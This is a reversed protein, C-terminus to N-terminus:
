VQAGKVAFLESQEPANRHTCPICKGSFYAQMEKAPGKDMLHGHCLLFGHDAQKLVEASHTILLVTSGQDKLKRIVSFIFNVAEIDVGSDPEDMLVLKPKMIAISALEIRKREGGSLTKDVKRSRYRLPSLGVLELAADIEESKAGPKGAAVFASVGVGEFRAPEQWALTIGRGARESVSLGKISEGQFRIDGRHHEYGALGMVTMALTSKGAGNPGVVAHVHGEWIDLSLNNLIRNGDLDLSVQDLELIGM